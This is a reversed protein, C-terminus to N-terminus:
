TRTSWTPSAKTGTNQFLTGATTNVYLSGIGAWTAGTVANTPDGAGSFMWVDPGFMVGSKAAIAGKEFQVVPRKM